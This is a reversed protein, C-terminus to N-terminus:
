AVGVIWWRGIRRWPLLPIFFLHGVWGIEGVGGGDGTVFGRFGSWDWGHNMFAVISEDLGGETYGHPTPDDQSTPNARLQRRYVNGPGGSGRAEENGDEAQFFLIM